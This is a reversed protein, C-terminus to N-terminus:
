RVVLVPCPAHQVMARSTSGLIAGKLESRGRTGVVILQANQARGLLAAAPRDRHTVTEVKVEPFRAGVEAVRADLDALISKQWAQEQDPTARRSPPQWAYVAVLPCRRRDAAAFAEALVEAGAPSADVGVVVPAAPDVHADDGLGRVIVVSCHANAVVGTSVSGLLMGKFGGLGRSGMVLLEYGSSMEVLTVVPAGLNSLARIALNPAAGRARAEADALVEASDQALGEMLFGIADMAGLGTSPWYYCHTITLPLGRRDAEAVAWDLARDASESGDVAVLIGGSSPAAQEGRPAGPDPRGGREADRETSPKPGTM